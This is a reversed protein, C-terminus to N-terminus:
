KRDRRGFCIGKERLILAIYMNKTKETSQDTLAKNETSQVKLVNRVMHDSSSLQWLGQMWQSDNGASYQKLITEGINKNFHWGYNETHRLILWSVM